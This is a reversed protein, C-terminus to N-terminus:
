AIYRLLEELRKKRNIEAYTKMCFISTRTNNTYNLKKYANYFRRADELPKTLDSILGAHAIMGAEKAAKTHIVGAKYANLGSSHLCVIM